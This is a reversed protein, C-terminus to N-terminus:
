LFVHLILFSSFGKQMYVCVSIIERLGGRKVPVCLCIEEAKGRVCLTVGAKSSGCVCVEADMEERHRGECVWLGKVVKVRMCVGFESCSEERETQSSLIHEAPLLTNLVSVLIHLLKSLTSLDLQQQAEGGAGFASAM